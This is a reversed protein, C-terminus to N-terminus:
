YMSKKALGLAVLEDNIKIGDVVIIGLWRGYKERRDKITILEVTKDLVRQRLWDRSKAGADNEETSGGHLEPADIGFLRIKQQRLVVYFGLDIDATITDGDYVAVVTARYDYM